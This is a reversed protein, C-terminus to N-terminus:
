SKSILYRSLKNEFFEVSQGQTLYNSKLIKLVYKIDQNNISQKGYNIM